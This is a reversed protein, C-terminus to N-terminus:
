CRSVRRNRARVAPAVTKGTSMLLVAAAAVKTFNNPVKLIEIFHIRRNNSTTNTQGSDETLKAITANALEESPGSPIQENNLAKIAEDLNKESEREKM